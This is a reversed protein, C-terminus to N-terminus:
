QGNDIKKGCFPCFEYNEKEVFHESIEHGCKTEYEWYHIGMGGNDVRKWKCTKSM